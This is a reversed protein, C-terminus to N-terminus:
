YVDKYQGTKFLQENRKHRLAILEAAFINSDAEAEDSLLKSGQTGDIDLLEEIHLAIHALEHAMRQRLIKVNKPNYSGDANRSQQLLKEPLSIIFQNCLPLKIVRGGDIVMDHVYEVYIRFPGRLQEIETMTETIKANDDSKEAAQLDNKLKIIKKQNFSKFVEEVIRNCAFVAHSLHYDESIKNIQAAKQKIEKPSM